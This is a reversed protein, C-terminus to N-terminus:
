KREGMRVYIGNASHRAQVVGAITRGRFDVMAGNQGAGISRNTGAAGRITNVTFPKRAGQRYHSTGRHATEKITGTAPGLVETIFFTDAIFFGRVPTQGVIISSYVTLAMGATDVAKAVNRAIKSATDTVSALYYACQPPIGANCISGRNVRYVNFVANLWEQLPVSVGLMANLGTNIINGSDIFYGVGSHFTDYCVTPEGIGLVDDPKLENFFGIFKKHRMSGFRGSDEWLQHTFWKKSVIIDGKLVTEIAVYVSETGWLPGYPGTVFTSEVHAIVVNSSNLFRGTLAKMLKRVTATDATCTPSPFDICTTIRVVGPQLTDLSISMPMCDAGCEQMAFVFLFLSIITVKNM